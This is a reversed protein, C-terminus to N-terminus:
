VVMLSTLASETSIIVPVRRVCARVYLVCTDIKNKGARLHAVLKKIAVIGTVGIHVRTLTSIVM